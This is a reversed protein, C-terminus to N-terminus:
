FKSVINSEIASLDFLHMQKSLSLYHDLAKEMEKKFSKSSHYKNYLEDPTSM